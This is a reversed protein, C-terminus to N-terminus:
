PPIPHSLDSACGWSSSIRRSEQGFGTFSSLDKLPELHAGEGQLSTGAECLLAPTPTHVAPSISSNWREENGRLGWLPITIEREDEQVTQPTPLSVPLARAHNLKAAPGPPHAWGEEQLM